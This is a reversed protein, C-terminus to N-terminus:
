YPQCIATSPYIILIEQCCSLNALITHFVSFCTQRVTILSAESFRRGYFEYSVLFNVWNSLGVVLGNNPNFNHIPNPSDDPVIQRLVWYGGEYFYNRYELISALRPRIFGATTDEVSITELCERM